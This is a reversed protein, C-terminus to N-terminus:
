ENFIPNHHVPEINIKKQKIKSPKIAEPLYEEFERIMNYKGITKYDSHIDFDKALINWAVGKTFGKNNRSVKTWDKINARANDFMQKIEKNTIKEALEWLIKDAM